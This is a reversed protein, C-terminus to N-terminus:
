CTFDFLFLLVEFVLYRIFWAGVDFQVKYYQLITFSEAIELTHKNWAFIRDDELNFLSTGVSTLTCFTDNAQLYLPYKTFVLM